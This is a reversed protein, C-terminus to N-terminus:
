PLAFSKMMQVMNWGHILLPSMNTIHLSGDSDRCVIMIAPSSQAFFQNTDQSHLHRIITPTRKYLTKDRIGELHNNM